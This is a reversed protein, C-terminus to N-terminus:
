LRRRALKGCVCRQVTSVTATVRSSSTQGLTALIRFINKGLGVERSLETLTWSPHQVSFCGLVALMNGASRLSVSAVETKGGNESVADLEETM